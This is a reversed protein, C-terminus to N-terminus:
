GQLPGNKLRRDLDVPLPGPGLTVIKPKEKQEPPKLSVWKYPMEAPLMPVVIYGCNSCKREDVSWSPVLQATSTLYTNQHVFHPAHVRVPNGCKGCKITIIEIEAM